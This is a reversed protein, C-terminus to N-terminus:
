LSVAALENTGGDCALVLPPVNDSCQHLYTHFFRDQRQQFCGVFVCALKSFMAAVDAEM